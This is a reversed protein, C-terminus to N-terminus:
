QKQKATEKKKQQKRKQWQKLSRLEQALKGNIGVLHKTKYLNFDISLGCPWLGKAVLIQTEGYSKCTHAEGTALIELTKNSAYHECLSEKIDRIATLKKCIATKFVDRRWEKGVKKLQRRKAKQQTVTTKNKHMRAQRFKLGLIRRKVPSLQAPNAPLGHDM